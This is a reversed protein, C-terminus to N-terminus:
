AAKPAGNEAWVTAVDALQLGALRAKNEATMFAAIVGRVLRTLTLKEGTEQEYQLCIKQLKAVDAVQLPLMMASTSADRARMPASLKEDFWTTGRLQSGVNQLFCRLAARAVMAESVSRPRGVAKSERAAIHTLQKKLTLPLELRVGRLGGKPVLEFASLTNM